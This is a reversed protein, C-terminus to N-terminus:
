TRSLNNKLEEKIIQRIYTRLEPKLADIGATINPMYSSYIENIIKEELETISATVTNHNNSVDAEVSKLRTDINNITNSIREINESLNNLQAYQSGM